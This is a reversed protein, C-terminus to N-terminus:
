PGLEGKPLSLGFVDSLGVYVTISMALGSRLFLRVVGLTLATWVITWQLHITWEDFSTYVSKEKIFQM